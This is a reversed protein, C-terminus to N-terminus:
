KRRNREGSDTTMASFHSKRRASSYMPARAGKAGIDLSLEGFDALEIRANAEFVLVIREGYMITARRLELVLNEPHHIRFEICKVALQLDHAALRDNLNLRASEVLSRSQPIEHLVFGEGATPRDEEAIIRSVFIGKGPQRFESAQSNGDAAEQGACRPPDARRPIHAM